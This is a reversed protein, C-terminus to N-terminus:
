WGEEIAQRGLRAATAAWLRVTDADEGHEILVLADHGVSRAARTPSGGKRRRARAAVREIEYRREALERPTMTKKM